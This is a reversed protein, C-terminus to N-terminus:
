GKATAETVLSWLATTTSRHLPRLQLQLRRPLRVRWRFVTTVTRTSSFNKPSVGDAGSDDVGGAGADDVPAPVYEEAALQQIKDEFALEQDQTKL